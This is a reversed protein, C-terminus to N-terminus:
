RCIVPETACITMANNGAVRVVDSFVCCVRVVDSVSVFCGLM